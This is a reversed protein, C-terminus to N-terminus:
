QESLRFLHVVDTFYQAGYNFVNWGTPVLFGMQARYRQIFTDIAPEAYPISWKMGFFSVRCLRSGLSYLAEFMASVLVNVQSMSLTCNNSACTLTIGFSTRLMDVLCAKLVERDNDNNDAYVKVAIPDSIVHLWDDFEPLDRVPIRRCAPCAMIGFFAPLDLTLMTVCAADLNLTKPDNARPDDAHPGGLPRFRVLGTSRDGSLVIHPHLRRVTTRPVRPAPPVSEPAPSFRAPPAKDNSSAGLVLMRVRRAVQPREAAANESSSNSTYETDSSSEPWIIPAETHLLQDESSETNTELPPM